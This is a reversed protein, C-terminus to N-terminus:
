TVYTNKNMFWLVKRFRAIKTTYGAVDHKSHHSNRSRYCGLQSIPLTKNKVPLNTFLTSFIRTGNSSLTETVHLTHHSYHRTYAYMNRGTRSSAKSFEDGMHYLYADICGIVM